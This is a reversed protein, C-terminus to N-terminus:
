RGTGGGGPRGPGAPRGGSWLRGATDRGAPAGRFATLDAWSRGPRDGLLTAGRRPGTDVGERRTPGPGGGRGGAQRQVAGAQVGLRAVHEAARDGGRCTGLIDARGAHHRERW